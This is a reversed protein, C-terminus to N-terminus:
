SRLITAYLSTWDRSATQRGFDQMVRSCSLTLALRQLLLLCFRLLSRVGGHAWFRRVSHSCLVGFDILMGGLLFAKGSDPPGLLM